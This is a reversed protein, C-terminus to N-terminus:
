SLKDVRAFLRDAMRLGRLFPIVTLPSTNWKDFTSADASNTSHDSPAARRGPMIRLPNLHHHTSPCGSDSSRSAGSGRSFAHHLPLSSGGSHGFVELSSVLVAVHYAYTGSLLVCHIQSADLHLMGSGGPSQHMPLYMRRRLRAIAIACTLTYM